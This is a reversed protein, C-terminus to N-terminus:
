RDANSGGCVKQGLMDNQMEYWNRWCSGEACYDENGYVLVSQVANFGFCFAPPNPNVPGSACSTVDPVSVVAMCDPEVAMCGPIPPKTTGDLLPIPETALQLRGYNFLQWLTAADKTTPAVAPDSPEGTPIDTQNRFGNVCKATVPSLNGNGTGPMFYGCGTLFMLSLVATIAYKRM